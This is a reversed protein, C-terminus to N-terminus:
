KKLVVDHNDWLSSKKRVQRGDGSGAEAVASVALVNAAVSSLRVNFETLTKTTRSADHAASKGVEILRQEIDVLKQSLRSMDQATLKADEDLRQGMDALRRTLAASEARIHELQEKLTEKKRAKQVTPKKAM